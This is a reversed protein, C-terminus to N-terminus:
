RGYYYYKTPKKASKKLQNALANEKKAQATQKKPKKRPKGTIDEEPMEGIPLLIESM